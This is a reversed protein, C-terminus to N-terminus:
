QNYFLLILQHFAQFKIFEIIQYIRLIKALQYIPNKNSLEDSDGTILITMGDKLDVGQIPQPVIGNLDNKRSNVILDVYGRNYTGYNYLQIDKNFCLIPKKAQIYQIKRTNDTYRFSM